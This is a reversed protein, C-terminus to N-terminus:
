HLKGPLSCGVPDIEQQMEEESLVQPLVVFGLMQFLQKDEGSVYYSSGCETIGSTSQASTHESRVEQAM